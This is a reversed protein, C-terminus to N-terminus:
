SALINYGSVLLGKIDSVCYTYFLVNSAGTLKKLSHMKNINRVYCRFIKHRNFIICNSRTIM